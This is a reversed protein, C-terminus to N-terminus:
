YRPYCAEHAEADYNDIEGTDEWVRGCVKCKIKDKEGKKMGISVFKFKNEKTCNHKTEM